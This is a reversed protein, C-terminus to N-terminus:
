QPRQVALERKSYVFGVWFAVGAILIHPANNLLGVVTFNPGGLGKTFIDMNLFERSFFLGTIADLAYPIGVLKFYLARWRPLFAVLVALLGSVLHFIDDFPDIKFLGFLKGSADTCGPAHSVIVVFLFGAAYLWAWQKLTPRLNM